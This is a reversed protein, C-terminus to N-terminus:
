PPAGSGKRGIRASPPHAKQRDTQLRSAVARLKADADQAAREIAADAAAGPLHGLASLAAFRVDWDGDKLAGALAPVAEPDGLLGLIDAAHARVGAQAGRLADVLPAVATMGFGELATSLTNRREADAQGLGAVLVALAQPSRLQGLAFIAKRAVEADADNVACLLAATARSDAIKGLTHVAQLRAAADPHELLKLLESLAAEGMRTVAWTLNERVFFDTECTLRGLLEPLADLQRAAGLDLAARICINKDPHGLDALRTQNPVTTMPVGSILHQMADTVFAWVSQLETPLHRRYASGLADAIDARGGTSDGVLANWRRALHRAAPSSPAVRRELATFVDTLLHPWDEGSPQALRDQMHARQEGSLTVEGTIDQAVQMFQRVRKEVRETLQIVEAVERWGVEAVGQLTRLRDLLAQEQLVRRELLAIHQRLVSQADYMPDDLARGIEALSLGLSKLSQIHLLRILDAPSYLRYAAQSRGTPRLLGLADYHRLTRVSLGTRRAVEGIKFYM